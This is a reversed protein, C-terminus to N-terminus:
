FVDVLVNFDAVYLNFITAEVDNYYANYLQCEGHGDYNSTMGEIKSIVVEKEIESPFCCIIEDPLVLTGVLKKLNNLIEDDYRKIM